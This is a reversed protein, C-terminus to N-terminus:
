TRAKGRLPGAYSVLPDDVGAAPGHVHRALLTGGADYEAVLADGDYLMRTTTQLVGANYGRM